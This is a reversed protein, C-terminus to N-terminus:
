ALSNNPFAGGVHTRKSPISHKARGELPRRLTEFYLQADRTGNESVFLGGATYFGMLGTNSNFFYQKDPMPSDVQMRLHNAFGYTTNTPAGQGPQVVSINRAEMPKFGTYGPLRTRPFQQLSYLLM